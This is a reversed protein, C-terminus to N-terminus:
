IQFNSYDPLPLDCPWNPRAAYFEDMSCSDMAETSKERRYLNERMLSVIQNGACRMLMECEKLTLRQSENNRPANKVPVCGTGQVKLLGAWEPIEDVLKAALADPMLFWFYSPAKAAYLSRISEEACFRSQIHRKKMNARFDSATRKIEIEMTFRNPGIGLIDPEGAHWSRPSREWLVLPCRKEWRLFSAGAVELIM